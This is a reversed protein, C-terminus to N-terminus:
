EIVECEQCWFNHKIVDKIKATFVHNFECKWELLQKYNIYENSTCEGGHNIAFEKCDEISIRKNPKRDNM